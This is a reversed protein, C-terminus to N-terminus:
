NNLVVFEQKLAEYLKIFILFVLASVQRSRRASPSPTKSMEPTGAVVDKTSVSGKILYRKFRPPQQINPQDIFLIPRNEYCSKDFHASCLCSNNLLVFNKTNKFLIQGNKRSLKTKQFATCQFVKVILITRVVSKTLAALLM